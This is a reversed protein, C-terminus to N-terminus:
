YLSIQMLIEQTLAEEVMEEMTKTQKEVEKKTKDEGLILNVISGDFGSIMYCGGDEIRAPFDNKRSTVDWWIFKMSDVFKKPFVSYLKNKMEKYNTTISRDSVKSYPNNSPNFQMDSVILLTTPYDELPIDRHSLRINCIEDVVSQFNTGGMANMPIQSLMETFSGNLQKVYSKNDFMIVNKHFAGKNLTSFYVGLSLCIDMATVKGNFTWGMSGSTDLACWVNEKIISDKQATEILSDFQKDLTKSKYLPIKNNKFSNKFSNKYAMALEYVYGTYKAVPQKDLWESYSEVLNHNELFKSSVLLNLARGPIKNWNINKYMGGCIQKQFEHATGSSKFKNYTKNDWNMFKAFEKAIDNMVKTWNTTLKSKSKIRPMFKKILESHEEYSLGEKLLQFFIKRDLCNTEFEVDYFMMQFLDKWSGVIPLCWLNNYFQEKHNKAIWLLRKFSEDRLGQGHQVKDTIFGDNIKITRSILRLYFPFRLANIVNEKWITKQDKFVDKINRGMYNGAKGFQDVIAMGTSSNSIAGNETLVDNKGIAKMFLNEM